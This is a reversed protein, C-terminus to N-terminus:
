GREEKVIEANVPNFYIEVKEGEKDYGYIEYCQGETVKFEKIEYGQAVLQSQFVDQDMWESSPASTCVTESQVGCGSLLMVAPAIALAIIKKM